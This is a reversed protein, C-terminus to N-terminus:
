NRKPDRADGHRRRWRLRPSAARARRHRAGARAAHIGHRRGRRRGPAHGQGGAVNIGLRLGPDRARRRPSATTPSRSCTPCRRTPSRTPRPSRCRAPCTPSATTSSGTSRTPRIATPPRAALDRLLWGPRDRRRGAGRAAEDPRAAQTTIVHPARAGHVLVGGIVLDMERCGRRSRSADLSFVTSARGGFAVDLERLKDLSVDYVFVDAEMGIAIFAAHMGVAGGGIIMVNAPPSGPSAASCSGAAASRAERAHVRGGPHRDQRRGGVDAGAAAAPGAQGRRDRLRRLDRRHRVVRTHTRACARPAPVHLPDSGRRLLRSRRPSPSRSASSWRRGRRLRGRRDPPDARGPGRLRLGRDGLGRRRGEPDVVEHGHESLERVGIPTIAVRYEDPKIETPVGVKM